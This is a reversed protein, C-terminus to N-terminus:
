TKRRQTPMSKQINRVEARLVEDHNLRGAIKDYGFSITAPSRGGLEKGTQALTCNTKQRILYMAVQRALVVREERSHGTLTPPTFKYFSAVAEVIQSPTVPVISEVPDPAVPAIDREVEELIKQATDLKGLQYEMTWSWLSSGMAEEVKAKAESVAARVREREAVIEKPKLM